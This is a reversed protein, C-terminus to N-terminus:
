STWAHTADPTIAMHAKKAAHHKAEDTQVSKQM